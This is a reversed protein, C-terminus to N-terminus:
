SSWWSARCVAGSSASCTGCSPWRRRRSPYYYYKISGADYLKLLSLLSLLLFLPVEVSSRVEGSVAMDGAPSTHGGGYGSARPYLGSFSRGVVDLREQGNPERSYISVVCRDDPPEILGQLSWVQGQSVGPPLLTYEPRGRVELLDLLESATLVQPAPAPASPNRGSAEGCRLIAVPTDTGLDDTRDSRRAAGALLRDLLAERTAEEPSRKQLVGRPNSFLCCDLASGAFLAVEPIRQKLPLADPGDKCLHRWFGVEM